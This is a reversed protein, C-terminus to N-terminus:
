CQNLYHGWDCWVGLARVATGPSNQVFITRGNLPGARAGHPNQGGTRPGYLKLAHMILKHAGYPNLYRLCGTFLGHPPGYPSRAPGTRGFVVGTRSKQWNQNHWNEQTDTLAGYPVRAPWARAGTRTGYSIFFMSSERAPGTRHGFPCLVPYGHLGAFKEVLGYTYLRTLGYPARLRIHGRSCCRCFIEVAAESDSPRVPLFDYPQYFDYPVRPQMHSLCWSLPRAGVLRCAM